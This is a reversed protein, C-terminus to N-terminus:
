ASATKSRACRLQACSRRTAQYAASREPPREPAQGRAPPKAAEEGARQRAAAVQAAMGAVAGAAAIGAATREGQVNAEGPRPPPPAASREPQDAPPRSVPEPPRSEPPRPEPSRAEPQRATASGQGVSRTPDATAAPAERAPPPVMEAPYDVLARGFRNTPEGASARSAARGATATAATATSGAMAMRRSRTLLRRLMCGIWAGVFYASLLILASQWLFPPVDSM